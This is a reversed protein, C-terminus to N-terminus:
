TSPHCAARCCSADHAIAEAIVLQLAPLYYKTPLRLERMDAFLVYSLIHQNIPSSAYVPM